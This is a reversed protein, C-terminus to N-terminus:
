RWREAKFWAAFRRIGEEIRVTPEYGFWQRARDIDAYTIPMEGIQAPLEEIQAKKGLAEELLQVIRRIEVPRHHGLNVETGVRDSRWAAITGTIIDDIYTFDRQAKGGAFLPLPRDDRIAAAFICMALDPRLRPGYVSFYRLSLTPLGYLEHYLRCFHETARKTVGYPSAPVSGLRDERFPAEADRGYVTSSSASVFRRCGMERAVELLTLTGGINVEVYPQPQRISPRVGAHAALHIVDTVHYRRFTDRMRDADRIDAEVLTFRPHDVVGRLNERKWRPDYFPNFDDVCVIQEDTEQLLREILHSGIFGAGGTVLISM